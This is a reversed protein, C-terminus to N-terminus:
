RGGPRSRTGSRRFWRQGGADAKVRGKHDAIWAEAEAATAFTSVTAPFTDPIKVEVGFGGDKLTVVRYDADAHPHTRAMMGM